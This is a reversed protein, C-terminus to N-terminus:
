KLEVRVEAVAGDRVSVSATAERTGDSATVTYTGPALHERLLRGSADTATPTAGAGGSMMEMFDIGGGAANGESDTLEVTAGTIPQLTSKDVVLVSASGGLGLTFDAHSTKESTVRVGAKRLPAFGSASVRAVYVGPKLGSVRYHGDTEGPLVLLGSMSRGADDLLTVSPHPVPQGDPGSVKGELAVGPQLRVEVSAQGTEAVAVEVRENAYTEDGGGMRFTEVGVSVDFTGAPLHRFEARGDAGTTQQWVGGKILDMLSSTAGGPRAPTVIVEMSALPENSKADVVHVALSGRPAVLDVRLDTDDAVKVNAFVTTRETEGGITYRGRSVNTIEYEGSDNSKTTRQDAMAALNKTSVDIMTINVGPTPHDDILVKGHIRCGARSSGGLDVRVTEGDGVTVSVSDRLGGSFNEEDEDMAIGITYTGPEIGSISYAGDPRSKTTGAPMFGSRIIVGAGGSPVGSADRVTGMVTGGRSLVIEVDCTGDAGAAPLPELRAPLFGKKGAVLARANAPVETITFSGDVASRTGQEDGGPSAFNMLFQKAIPSAPTHTFSVSAGSVPDRTAGDVVRGHVTLDPALTIVVGDVPQGDAITISTSDGSGQSKAHARLTYTGDTLSSLTFRGDPDDFAESTRPMMDAGFFAGAGGSTWATVQFSKAPDGTALVVRGSISAGKKLVIRADATGPKLKVRDEAIYGQASVRATVPGATLGAVHFKGEADTAFQRQGM